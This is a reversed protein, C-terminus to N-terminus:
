GANSTLDWQKVSFKECQYSSQCSDWVSVACCGRSQTTGHHKDQLFNNTRVDASALHPQSETQLLVVYLNLLKILVTKFILVQGSIFTFLRGDYCQHYCERSQESRHCGNCCSTLHINWSTRGGFKVGHQIQKWLKTPFFFFFFFWKGSDWTLLLSWAPFAKPQTNPNKKPQKNQTHTHVEM